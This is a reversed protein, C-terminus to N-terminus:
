GVTLMKDQNESPSPVGTCDIYVVDKDITNFMNFAHRIRKYFRM